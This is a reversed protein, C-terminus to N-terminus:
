CIKKRRMDYYECFGFGFSNKCGLGQNTIERAILKSKKDNKIQLIVDYGISHVNNELDHCIDSRLPDIIIGEIFSYYEKRNKSYSNPPFRNKDIMSTYVQLEILEKLLALGYDYHYQINNINKDIPINWNKLVIDKFEYNLSKVQIFENIKSDKEKVQIVKFFDNEFNFLKEFNLTTHLFIKYYNDKYYIKRKSIYFSFSQKKNKSLQTSFITSFLKHLHINREKYNINKKFFIDIEFKL